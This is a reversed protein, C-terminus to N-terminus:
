LLGELVARAQEPSLGHHEGLYAEATHWGAAVLVARAAIRIEEESAAGVPQALRGQPHGETQPSEPAVRALEVEEVWREAREKAQLLDLHPEVLRLMKIARIKNGLRLQESITHVAETTMRGQVLAEAGTLSAGEVAARLVRWLLGLLLVVAILVCVVVVDM